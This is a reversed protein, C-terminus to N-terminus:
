PCVPWVDELLGRLLSLAPLEYEVPQCGGLPKAASRSCLSDVQVPRSLVLSAALLRWCLPSAVSLLGDLIGSGCIPRSPQASLVVHESRLLQAAASSSSVCSDSRWSRSFVKGRGLFVERESPVKYSFACRSVVGRPRINWLTVPTREVVRVGCIAPMTDDPCCVIVEAGVCDRGETSFRRSSSGLGACDAKWDAQRREESCM